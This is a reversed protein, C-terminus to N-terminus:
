TRGPEQSHQVHPLFTYHDAADACMCNSLNCTLVLLRPAHSTCASNAFSSASDCKWKAGLGTTSSMATRASTGARARSSTAGWTPVGSLPM